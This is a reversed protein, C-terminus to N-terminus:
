REFEALIGNMLEGAEQDSMSPWLFRTAQQSRLFAVVKRHHAIFEQDDMAAWAISKPLAVMKGAPGPVFHVHGAGVQCWLRFDDLEPFQESTDWVASLMAFHYGHMKASRPFWYSMTLCSGQELETLIKKLKAYATKDKEGLGVLRGTEDRTILISTM